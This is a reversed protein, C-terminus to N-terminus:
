LFPRTKFTFKFSREKVQFRISDSCSVRTIAAVEPTLFTKRKLFDQTKDGSEAM